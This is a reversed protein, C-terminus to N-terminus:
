RRGTRPRHLGKRGLQQLGDLVMLRTPGVLRLLDVETDQVALGLLRVRKTTETHQRQVLAVNLARYLQDAAGDSSLRAVRHVVCVEPLRQYGCAVTLGSQACAQPRNLQIGTEGVGMEIKADNVLQKAVEFPGLVTVLGRQLNSGSEALAKFM